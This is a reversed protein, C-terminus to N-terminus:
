RGSKSDESLRIANHVQEVADSFKAGTEKQYREIALKRNKERIAELVPLPVDWLPDISVGLTTIVADLKREFRELRRRQEEFKRDVVYFSISLLTFVTILMTDSEM